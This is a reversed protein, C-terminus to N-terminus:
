KMDVAQVWIVADLSLEKGKYTVDGGAGLAAFGWWGARPIGFTFEGDKNAKITLTVFSDQPAKVKARKSFKNGKIDHNLYEVEIECYPVPRGKAKVIGRFVNGAWLGYPKDLPVIEVPLGIEADWDTPAGAVNVITKTIQQIYIDESGEYYPEPVLYFVYDGMGRVKYNMEYAKGENTLSKFLILELKDLLNKKKGKHVVGFELPKGMDMTHGAEFPHTFILKLNIEKGKELASEGTYITQFHAFVPISCTLVLALSLLLVLVNKKM